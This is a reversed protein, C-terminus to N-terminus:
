MGLEKLKSEVKLDIARLLNGARERRLAYKIGNYKYLNILILLACKTHIFYDELYAKSVNLMLEDELLSYSENLYAKVVTEHSDVKKRPNCITDVCVKLLEPLDNYKKNGSGVGEGVKAIEKVKDQLSVTVTKM